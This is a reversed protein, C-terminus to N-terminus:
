TVAGAIKLEILGEDDFGLERLIDDTHEAFQPARTLKVATRDFKVPNAVLKQTRGDADVVDALRGNAELAEDHGLDWADQVPAWQGTLGKFVAKWEDLTRRAITRAIEAAIEDKAEFVAEMTKSRPDGLLDNRGLLGFFEDWYKTPQLMSFQIWRADSTQYHGTLPNGPAATTREVKPLPGGMALSLNVSFQTAWAGVALLSVDIESPEGTCKRGYLAAAIGGAITMGGINDGYAGSPMPAVHAAGPGTAGDASGARAWYATADYAGNESDPGETGFGSGTVFIIDPNIERVDELTLRL